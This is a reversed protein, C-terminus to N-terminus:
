HYLVQSKILTDRTRDGPPGGVRKERGFDPELLRFGAANHRNWCAAERRFSDRGSLAGAASAAESRGLVAGLPEVRETSRARRVGPHGRRRAGRRARDVQALTLEDHLSDRHRGYTDMDISREFLFAQDLRDLKERISKQKREILVQAVTDACHRIRDVQGDCLDNAERNLLERCRRTLTTAEVTATSASLHIPPRIRIRAGCRGQISSHTVRMASTLGVYPYVGHAMCLRVPGYGPLQVTVPAPVFQQKFQEFEEHSLVRNKDGSAAAIQDGYRRIGSRIESWPSDQRELIGGAAIFVAMLSAISSLKSGFVVLRPTAAFRRALLWLQLSLFVSAIGSLALLVFFPPDGPFSWPIPNISFFTLRYFLVMAAVIAAAVMWITSFM